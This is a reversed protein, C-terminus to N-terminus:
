GRYPTKEYGEKILQIVVQMIRKQEEPTINSFEIGTDYVIVKSQNKAQTKVSWVIRGKCKINKDMDLLDVELDVESFLKAGEKFIVCVGGTGINETHTLFADMGQSEHRITVLCPYNVRPFQRRELGQWDAM